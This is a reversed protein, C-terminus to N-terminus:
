PPSCDDGLGSIFSVGGYRKQPESIPVASSTCTQYREPLPEAPNWLPLSPSRVQGKAAWNSNAPHSTQNLDSQPRTTTHNHRTPEPPPRTTTQHHDPQPRTATDNHTRHRDPQSIATDPQNQSDDPPPRTTDPQQRATYNDSCSVRGRSGGPGGGPGGPLIGQSGGPPNGLPHSNSSTQHGLLSVM